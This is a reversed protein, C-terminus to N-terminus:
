VFSGDNLLKAVILGEICRIALIALFFSAWHLPQCVPLVFDAHGIAVDCTLLLRLL